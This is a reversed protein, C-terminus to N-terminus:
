LDFYSIILLGAILAGIIVLITLLLMGVEELVPKLFGRWFRM